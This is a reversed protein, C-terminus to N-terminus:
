DKGNAEYNVTSKLKKRKSAVNNVFGKRECNFNVISYINFHFGTNRSHYFMVRDFFVIHGHKSYGRYAKYFQKKDGLPDFQYMRQFAHGYRGIFVM